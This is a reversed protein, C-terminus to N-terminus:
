FLKFSVTTYLDISQLLITIKNQTTVNPYVYEVNPIKNTKTFLQGLM